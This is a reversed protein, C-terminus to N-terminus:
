PSDASADAGATPASQATVYTHQEDSQKPYSVPLQLCATMRLLHFVCSLIAQTNTFEYSRMMHKNSVFTAVASHSLAGNVKVSVV